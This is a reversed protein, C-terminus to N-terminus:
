PPVPGGARVAAVGDAVGQASAAAFAQDDLLAEYTAGAITRHARDTEVGGAVAILATLVCVPYILWPRTWRVLHLRAQRLMSVALV